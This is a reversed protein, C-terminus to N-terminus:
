LVERLTAIYVNGVRRGPFLRSRGDTDGDPLYQVTYGTKTLAHNLDTSFGGWFLEYIIDPPAIGCQRQIEDIRRLYSGVFMLLGWTSRPERASVPCELFDRTVLAFRDLYRVEGPHSMALHYMVFGSQGSLISVPRKKPRIRDIQKELEIVAPFYRRHDHNAREFWHFRNGWGGVDTDAVAWIPDSHSQTRAFVLAGGVQLVVWCVITLRLVKPSLGRSLVAVGLIAAVPIVPVFFRGGHMGDGGAFVIFGVNALFFLACIVSVSSRMSSAARPLLFLVAAAFGLLVILVFDSQISELLYKIGQSFGAGLAQSKAYVPQPFFRGFYWLRFTAVVGFGALALLIFILVKRPAKQEWAEPSLGLLRRLTLISGLGLLTASLIFISEPRSLIYVFALVGAVAYKVKTAGVDLINVYVLLLLVSWLAALTAEMGGFSWYVFYTCSAVLVPAYRGVPADFRKGLSAVAFITAAGFLISLLRGVISADIGTLWRVLAIILVFGLSSSQEVPQWNYNLIAGFDSLTYSSWYTMYADDWGASPFLLAGIVVLGAAALVVNRWTLGHNPQHTATEQLIATM